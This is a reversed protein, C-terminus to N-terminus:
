DDVTEGDITVPENSGLQALMEEFNTSVRIHKTPLKGGSWWVTTHELWAMMTKVARMQVALEWVEEHRRILDEASYNQQMAETIARNPRGAAPVGGPNPSKGPVFQGTRTRTIAKSDSMGM